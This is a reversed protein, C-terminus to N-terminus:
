APLEDPNSRPRRSHALVHCSDEGDDDRRRQEGADDQQERTLALPAGVDAGLRLFAPDNVLPLLAQGLSPKGACDLIM